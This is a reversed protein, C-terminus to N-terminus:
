RWWGTEAMAFASHWTPVLRTEGLERNGFARIFLRGRVQPPFRGSAATVNEFRGLTRDLVGGSPALFDDLWVLLSGRYFFPTWRPGFTERLELAPHLTLIRCTTAAHAPQQMWPVVAGLFERVTCASGMFVLESCRLQPYRALLECAVIAGTSHSVLIVDRKPDEVEARTLRSADCQNEKGCRWGAM